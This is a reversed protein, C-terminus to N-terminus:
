KQFSRLRCTPVLWEFRKDECVYDAIVLQGDQILVHGERILENMMPLAVLAEKVATPSHTIEPTSM